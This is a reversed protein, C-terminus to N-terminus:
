KKNKLTCYPSVFLFLRPSVLFSLARHDGQRDAHAITSMQGKGLQNQETLSWFLWWRCFTLLKRGGKPASDNWCPDCSGVCPFPFFHSSFSPLCRQEMAAFQKFCTMGGKTGILEFSAGFIELSILPLCAGVDSLLLPHHQSDHHSRYRSRLGLVDRKGKRWCKGNRLFASSGPGYGCSSFLSCALRVLM